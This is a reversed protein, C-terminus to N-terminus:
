NRTVVMTYLPVQPWLKLIDANYMRICGHSAMTGIVWPQNTGHIGYGTFSFGSGSQRFLRLRRPGYVGLPNEYHKIGVRWVAAPTPTYAKGIAVPYVEKLAGNVVWYLKFDSKDVVIYTAWPYNLVPAQEFRAAGATSFVETADVVVAVGTSQDNKTGLVKFTLTHLGNALGSVSALRVGFAYDSAYCDIVGRSVGDVFLEARGYSPGLAGYITTDTGRFVTIFSAGPKYAYAYGGGSFASSYGRSWLGSYGVRADSEEARQFGGYLAAPGSLSFVELADIVVTVGSSEAAKTGLVKVLLTHTGDDLGSASFIVQRHAYAPAYLSVPPQLVGDLYVQIDGYSPGVSGYLVLDSGRFLTGVSTGARYSYTYGGGSFASSYGRSWLGSYGLRADNDEAHIFGGYVLAPDGTSGVDIADLVVVTGTSAAARTGPVRVTLTHVADALGSIVVVPLQHGYEPAYLSTTGHSVGDVIVEVNGYSPGVSGIVALDTGRFVMSASAGARYAYTYEGGSFAGGASPFWQGGYTIASDGSEVRVAGPVVLAPAVAAPAAAPAAPSPATPERSPTVTTEAAPAPDPTSTMELTATADVSDAAFAAGPALLTLALLLAVAPRTQTVTRAHIM